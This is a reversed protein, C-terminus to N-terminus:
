RKQNKKEESVLVWMLLHQRWSCFHPCLIRWGLGLKLPEFCFFALFVHARSTGRRNSIKKKVTPLKSRLDRSLNESWKKKIRHKRLEHFQPPMAQVLPRKQKINNPSFPYYQNPIRSQNTQYLPDLAINAPGFHHKHLSRPRPWDGLTNLSM